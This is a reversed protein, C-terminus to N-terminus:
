SVKKWSFFMTFPSTPELVIQPGSLLGEVPEPLLPSFAYNHYLSRLANIIASPEYSTALWLIWFNETHLPPRQNWFSKRLLYRRDPKNLGDPKDPQNPGLSIRKATVITFKM